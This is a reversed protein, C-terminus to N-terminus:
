TANGQHNCLVKTNPKRLSALKVTPKVDMNTVHLYQLFVTPKVYKICHYRSKTLTPVILKSLLQDILRISINGELNGKQIDNQETNM